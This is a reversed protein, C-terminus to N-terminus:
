VYEDILGLAALRQPATSQPEGTFDSTPPPAREQPERRMQQQVSAEGLSLGAGAMMERLKPLAQELAARTDAQAAGFNVNVQSDSVELRIEVPGLHEPTMRLTASQVANDLCWRVETAVAQPWQVSHMPVSVTREVAPQAMARTIVNFSTALANGEPAANSRTIAAPLTFRPARERQESTAADSDGELLEAWMSGNTVTPGGGEADADAAIDAAADHKPTPAPTTATTVVSAAPLAEAPATSNVPAAPSVPTTVTSATLLALMEDGSTPEDAAAARARRPASRAGDDPMAELVEPELATLLADGAPNAAVELAPQAVGGRLLQLFPPAAGDFLVQAIDGPLAGTAAPDAPCATATATFAAVGSFSAVTTM